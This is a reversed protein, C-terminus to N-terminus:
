KKGHGWSRWSHRDGREIILSGAQERAAKKAPRQAPTHFEWWESGDYERRDLWWGDGVIKLSHNVVELGYGHDYDFCEAAAFFDEISIEYEEDNRGSVSIFKIDSPTLGHKELISITEDKLNCLEEAFEAFKKQKEGLFGIIRALEEESFGENSIVQLTRANVEAKGHESLLYAFYDDGKITSCFVKIDEDIIDFYEKYTEICTLEENM